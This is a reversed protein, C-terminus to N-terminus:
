TMSSGPSVSLMAIVVGAESSSSRPFMFTMDNTSAKAGRVAPTVAVFHHDGV